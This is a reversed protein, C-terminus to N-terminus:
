MGQAVKSACACCKTCEPSGVFSWGGEYQPGNQICVRLAEHMKHTETIQTILMGQAVKSSACACYMTCEPHGVVDVWEAVAPWKTHM